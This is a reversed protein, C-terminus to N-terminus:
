PGNPPLGINANPPPMGPVTRTGDPGLLGPADMAPPAFVNGPGSNPVLRGQQLGANVANLQNAIQTLIRQELM